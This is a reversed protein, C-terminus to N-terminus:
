AEEKAPQKLWNTIGVACRGCAITEDDCVFTNESCIECITGFSVVWESLEEDTMARIRDGNTPPLPEWKSPETSKGNVGEIFCEGCVDTHEMKELNYNACNGCHRM